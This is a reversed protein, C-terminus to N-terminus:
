SSLVSRYIEIIRTGIQDWSLNRVTERGKSRNGSELVNVLIKVLEKQNNGVGGPSVAELRKKVDGVDTSVVPVNCALAEKVANPSGEYKSTLLVADAANIYYPMEDHPIREISRLNVNEGLILEVENVVNIALPHNKRKYYPSYPFLVNAGDVDWGIHERAESRTIPHFLDLDIGSPVIISDQRGLLERM